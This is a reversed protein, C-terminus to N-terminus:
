VAEVHMSTALCRDAIANMDAENQKVHPQNKLALLIPVM